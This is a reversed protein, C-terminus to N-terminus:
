SWTSASGVWGSPRCTGSYGPGSTSSCTCVPQWISLAGPEGAYGRQRHRVQLDLTGRHRAGYGANHRAAAPRIAGQLGGRVVHATIASVKELLGKCGERRRRGPIGPNRRGRVDRRLLRRPLTPRRPYRGRGGPRRGLSSDPRRATHHLLRHAVIFTTRRSSDSGNGNASLTERLAEQIHKETEADVSSTADDLILIKPDKVLARAIAM